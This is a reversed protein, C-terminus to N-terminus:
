VVRNKYSKKWDINSRYIIIEDHEDWTDTIIDINDIGDETVNMWEEIIYDAETLIKEAFSLLNEMEMTNDPKDNLNRNGTNFLAIKSEM